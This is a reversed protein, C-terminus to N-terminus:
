VTYVKLFLHLSRGKIKAGGDNRPKDWKLDVFTRGVNAVTPVSPPGATALFVFM